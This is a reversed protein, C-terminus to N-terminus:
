RMLLNFIVQLVYISFNIGLDICDKRLFANFKNNLDNSVSIDTFMRHLKNTFEYGCAQQLFFILVIINIGNTIFIIILFFLM